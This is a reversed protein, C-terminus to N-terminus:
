FFDTSNERSPNRAGVCPINEKCKSSKYYQIEQLTYNSKYASINWNEIRARHIFSNIYM